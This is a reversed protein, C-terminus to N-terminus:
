RLDRGLFCRGPAWMWQLCERESLRRCAEECMERSTTAAKEAESLLYYEEGRENGSAVSPDIFKKDKSLNDWETRIGAIHPAVFAEFVDRFLYPHTHRKAAWEREFRWLSDIEHPLVHHWTVPPTCWHKRTWDVTSPREGQILPWAPTIPVQVNLLARALVEDGCCAESLTQEWKEDYVDRGTSLRKARLRQAAARSIVIGSGGHAFTTSGIVNQSGLYLPKDPNMTSLYQLLNTWSLSTDAEIMVFWDIGPGASAFAENLMPFFKWKDLNWGGGGKLYSIDRGEGNYTSMTGYLTFDNEHTEKTHSSIGAIADHVSYPGFGQALDSFLMFHPICTLTTVFHIPLKQYLETAGTKVMVLVKDAGPLNLCENPETALSENHHSSQNHVAKLPKPASARQYAPSRPLWADRYVFLLLLIGALLALRTFAGGRASFLTSASSGATM